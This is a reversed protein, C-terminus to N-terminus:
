QSRRPEIIVVANVTMGARALRFDLTRGITNPGLQRAINGVRTAPIGGVSLVIDGPLIGAKAGPSETSVDMVMLGARQENEPRLPEPIAVPRLAVGLWGREVHGKALLSAVSREVTSSPILFTQRHAGRTSIGLLAGDAALVPGGEDSGISADLVVRQDITGGPLSQWAGGVSRILALRAAVGESAAALILALAGAKATADGPREGTLDHELKLVAVNTGDDRGVLRAPVTRADVRVEYESADPLAQASVVVASPTWLVGSVPERDHPQVRAVFVRAGSVLASLAESLQVLSSSM